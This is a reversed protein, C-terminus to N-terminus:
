KEDKKASKDEKIKVKGEAIEAFAINAPKVLSDTDCLNAAGEAIKIARQSVLNVLKYMSNNTVNLLRELPIYSM